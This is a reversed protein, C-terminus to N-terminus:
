SSSYTTDCVISITEACLKDIQLRIFIVSGRAGGICVTCHVDNAIAVIAYGRYEVPIWLVCYGHLLLWGGQNLTVLLSVKHNSIDIDLSTLLIKQANSSCQIGHATSLLLQNTQLGDIDHHTDPSFISTTARMWQILCVVQDGIAAGTHVDLVRVTKDYSCSALHSGIPSFVVSQVLDTHGDMPDGIAAGTHADWLRM